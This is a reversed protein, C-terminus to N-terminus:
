QGRAPFAGQKARSAAPTPNPSELVPASVILHATPPEVVAPDVEAVNMTLLFEIECIPRDWSPCIEATPAEAYDETPALCAEGQVLLDPENGHWLNGDLTAHSNDLLVGAGQNAQITNGELLLGGTGDWSLVDAAYIGDGCRTTAGHDVSTNGSIENGILSYTGTGGLHVGATSNDSIISDSVVLTPPEWDARPAALIGVGGGLNVSQHTGSITSSRIELAAAHSAVAGAFSNDYLSCGDCELRSDPYFAYLGPGENGQVLLGTGHLTAGLQATLGTAIVGQLGSGTVTGSVTSDRLSVGTGLDFAVVGSCTNDLIECDDADLQAGEYVDIGYGGDGNSNSQTDSIITDRLCARSDAGGVMVGVSTNNELESSDVGLVGGEIVSIGVGMNDNIICHAAELEAGYGLAIGLGGTGDDDRLTGRVETHQLEVSTGTDIAGLGLMANGDFLCSSASFFAGDTVEVGHGYEGDVNPTTNRVTTESLVVSTGPDMATIGVSTNGDLVCGEADVLVGESAAIGEGAGGYLAPETDRIATNRLTATTGSDSALMGLFANGSLESNEVQLTAGTCVEIGHGFSGSDDSQGDQITSDHLLVETGSDGLMLGVTTNGVIECGDVTLQTPAMQNARRALIGVWASGEVRLEALEVNGSGVMIGTYRSDLVTVGSVEAEGYMVGIDIGPTSEDGASADLIVLEKCRGALHVGPHDQGMQLSELYTGTAVAVLGGGGGGALDLGAQISRFPAAESGDGGEEADADVFVSDDDVDLDGWRGAGCAEPVCSDGDLLEDPGCDDHPTSDDQRSPDPGCSAAVLAALSLLAFTPATHLM